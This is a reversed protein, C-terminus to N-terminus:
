PASSTVRRRRTTDIDVVHEAVLAFLEANRDILEDRTIPLEGRVWATMTESLGGLLHAAAFRGWSGVALTTEAGYFQEAQGVILAVFADAVEARRAALVPVSLPEVVVLRAKRPDDTLLTIAAGIAAHAKARPDGAATAVATVIALTVEALVSDAAALLVEDLTRFSEYFYRENLGAETCLGAVTLRAAGSREVLTLAADLLCSRRLAQRQEAPVGGYARAV